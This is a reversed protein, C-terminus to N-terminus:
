LAIFLQPMQTNPLQIERAYGGHPSLREGTIRGRSPSWVDSTHGLVPADRSQDCKGIGICRCSKIVREVQKIHQDGIDSDACFIQSLFLPYPRKAIKVLRGEGQSFDARNQEVIRMEILFHSRSDKGLNSLLLDSLGNSRGIIQCTRRFRIILLFHQGPISGYAAEQWPDQIGDGEFSRRGAVRSESGTVREFAQLTTAF